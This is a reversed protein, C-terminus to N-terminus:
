EIRWHKNDLERGYRSNESRVPVPVATNKNRSPLNFSKTEIRKISKRTALEINQIWSQKVTEPMTSNVGPQSIHQLKREAHMRFQPFLFHFAMAEVWILGNVVIIREVAGMYDAGTFTVFGGAAVLALGLIGSVLTFYKIFHWEGNGRLGLGFLVCSLPFAISIARATQLHILAQISDAAGPAKTPFITIIVFGIGMMFVLGTGAKLFLNARTSYLRLSFAMLVFGFVFFIAAMGWGLPGWVLESITNRIRNYGPDLQELSLCTAIFLVPAALTAIEIAKTAAPKYSNIQQKIEATNIM